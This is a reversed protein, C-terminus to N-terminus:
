GEDESGQYTGTGQGQSHPADGPEGRIPWLPLAIPWVTFWHGRVEREEEPWDEPPNHRRAHAQCCVEKRCTGM